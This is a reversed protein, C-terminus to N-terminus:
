GGTMRVDPFMRHASFTPQLPPRGPGPPQRHPRPFASRRSVPSMEGLGVRSERQGRSQVQGDIRWTVLHGTAPGQFHSLYQFAALKSSATESSPRCRIVQVQWVEFLYTNCSENNEPLKLPGQYPSKVGERPLSGFSKM